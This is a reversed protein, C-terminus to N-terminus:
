EVEEHQTVPVADVFIVPRFPQFFSASVLLTERLAPPTTSFLTISLVFTHLLGWAKVDVIFSFSSISSVALCPALGPLLYNRDASGEPSTALALSILAMDRNPHVM